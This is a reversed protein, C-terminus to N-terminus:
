SRFTQQGPINREQSSCHLSSRDRTHTNNDVRKNGGQRSDAKNSRSRGSGDGANSGYNPRRHNITSQLYLKRASDPMAFLDM